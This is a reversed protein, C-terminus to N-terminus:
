VAARSDSHNGPQGGPGKPCAAAAQRADAVWPGRLDCRQDAAQASRLAEKHTKGEALKRTTTPAARATSTGSRPSRPWTSPTTSLGTAACRCGSSRGAAPPCRWQPPATTPPSTTGAPSGSCTACTASSPAPSSRASASCARHPQYGLGPVAAALKKGPTACSPTWAAFTPWSSAPWSAACRPSRMRPGSRSSSAPLKSGPASRRAPVGGPVLDCLVAHLPCCVQNRSRALDRHRKAWVKLVVARDRPSAGPAPGHVAAGRGGGLLRREPREQQHGGGAAAAGPRGAEAARGAGAGRRRGAAPGAPVGARAAGEVAWARGPWGRRGPWCSNCRPRAPLSVQLEGLPEEGSGIAVATHSSKHPDIGIMVDAM